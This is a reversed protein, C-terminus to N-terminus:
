TTTLSRFLDCALSQSLSTNILSSFLSHFLPLHLYTRTAKEKTSLPKCLLQRELCRVSPMGPGTLTPYRLFGIVTFAGFPVCSAQECRGLFVWSM